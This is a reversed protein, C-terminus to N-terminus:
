AQSSNLSLLLHMLWNFYKWYKLSERILHKLLCNLWMLRDPLFKKMTWIVLSFAKVRSRLIASCMVSLSHSWLNVVFERVNAFMTRPDERIVVFDRDNEYDMVESEFSKQQDSYTQSFHDQGPTRDSEVFDFNSQDVEREFWWLEDCNSQQQKSSNRRNSAFSLNWRISAWRCKAM